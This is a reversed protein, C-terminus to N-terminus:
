QNQLSFKKDYEANLIKNLKKLYGIRRLVKFTLNEISYEGGEELGGRRMKLIKKKIRSARDLDPEEEQQDIESVLSHVKNKVNEINIQPDKSGDVPKVVWKDNLISYVGTSYHEESVSQPYIEVEYEKITIQHNKNWLAKKSRLFEEVLEENEDIESFDFLLHLDIDSYKTYNFNASSGTLQIDKPTIELKLFDIFENAINILAERVDEKLQYDNWLKSNLFHKIEFDFPDESKINVKIFNM